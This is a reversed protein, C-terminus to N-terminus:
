AFIVDEVGEDEMAYDLVIRIAKGLNPLEFDKVAANLYGLTEQDISLSMAEKKKKRGCGRKKTFVVSQDVGPQRAHGVVRAVINSVTTPESSKEAWSKIWM